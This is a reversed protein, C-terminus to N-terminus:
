LKEKRYVAPSMGMHKKFFKSFAALDSFHLVEAVQQVSMGDYRLLQLALSMAEGAIIEHPSKGSAEKVVRSLHKPTICMERAYFSVERTQRYNKWVLDMFGLMLTDKRSLNRSHAGRDGESMFFNGLELSFGKMYLKIMEERYHHGLDSLMAKLLLVQTRLIDCVSGSLKLLPNMLIKFLYDQPRPMIGQLSDMIFSRTTFMCYLEADPSISGFRVKTGELIDLFECGCICTRDDNISINMEGKCLLLLIRCGVVTHGYLSPLDEQGILVLADDLRKKEDVLLCLQQLGLYTKM